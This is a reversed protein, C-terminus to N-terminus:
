KVRIGIFDLAQVSLNYKKMKDVQKDLYSLKVLQMLVNVENRQAAPLSHMWNRVESRTMGWIKDLVMSQKKNIGHIVINDM